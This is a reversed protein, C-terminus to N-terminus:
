GPQTWCIRVDVTVGAPPTIALGWTGEATGNLYASFWGEDGGSYGGIYWNTNYQGDRTLLIYQNVYGDSCFAVTLDCSDAPLDFSLSTSSPATSIQWSIDYTVSDFGYYPRMVATWTGTTPNSVLADENSSSNTSSAAVPYSPWDGDWDGPAYLYLDADAYPFSTQQTRVALTTQGPPVEITFAHSDEYGYLTDTIPSSWGGPDLVASTFSYETCAQTYVGTREMSWSLIFEANVTGGYYDPAIVILYEGGGAQPTFSGSYDWANGLLHANDPIGDFDALLYLYINATVDGYGSGGTPAVSLTVSTTDAPVWMRLRWAQGPNLEYYPIYSHDGRAHLKGYVDGAASYAQLINILPSCNTRISWTTPFDRFTLMRFHWLGPTFANTLDFGENYAPDSGGGHSIAISPIAPPDAAYDTRYPAYGVVLWDDSTNDVDMLLRLDYGAGVGYGSSSYLWPVEIVPSMSLAFQSIRITGTANEPDNSGLAADADLNPPNQYGSFAQPFHAGGGWISDAWSGSAANALVGRQVVQGYSTGPAYVGYADYDYLDDPQITGLSWAGSFFSTDAWSVAIYGLGGVVNSVGAELYVPTGVLPTTRGAWLLFSGNSSLLSVGGFFADERDPSVHDLPVTCYTYAPSVYPPRNYCPSSEMDPFECISDTGIVAYGRTGPVAVLMVKEGVTPLRRIVPWPGTSASDSDLQVMATTTAVSTVVGLRTQLGILRHAALEGFLEALEDAM